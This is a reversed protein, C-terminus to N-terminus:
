FKLLLSGLRSITGANTAGKTSTKLMSPLLEDGANAVKYFPEIPQSKNGSLFGPGPISQMGHKVGSPMIQSYFSKENNTADEYDDSDIPLGLARKKLAISLHRDESDLPDALFRSQVFNGIKNMMQMREYRDFAKDVLPSYDDM